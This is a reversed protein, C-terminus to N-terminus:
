RALVDALRALREKWWARMEEVADADALREHQVAVTAKDPGKATFGVVVRSAGDRFDFRATRDRKATRTRLTGPELWRNRTRPETFARFLVAADVPLTKSVSVQFGSTTEHKARMGRAREYGVAVSQAWWGGVGHEERVYRAIDRHSREAAGWADLIALWETWGRGTGRRVAEESVGPDAVPAAPEQRAGVHRRAATYREGTKAMRTRIARKRAKDETM